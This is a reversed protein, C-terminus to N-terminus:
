FSLFNHDPLLINLNIVESTSFNQTILLSLIHGQSPECQGKDDGPGERQDLLWLAQREGKPTQHVEWRMQGKGM